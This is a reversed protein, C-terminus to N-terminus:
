YGIFTDKIINKKKVGQKRLISEVSQVMSKSGTVFYKANNQNIAIYDILKKQFDAIESLYNIDFNLNNTASDFFDRYLYKNHDAIYLMNIKSTPNIGTDLLQKVISRFPTVGIGGTIFLTPVDDKLYFGGVPGRMVFEQGQKMDLLAQKYESPQDGIKVSIKVINETPSSAVSFPRIPKNIKEHNIIFIGHQGAMWTTPNIPKFDFTYIDDYDKHVSQLTLIHKKFIPFLDKRLNM